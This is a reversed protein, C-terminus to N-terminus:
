EAPKDLPKYRPWKGQAVADLSPTKQRHRLRYVWLNYMVREVYKRTEPLYIAEIFLLPDDRVKWKNLNGEGANYAAVAFFLNKDIAPRDLLHLFFKQGLSMNYHPDYLKNVTRRRLGRDGSIFAATAPMLQMLGRAGAHSKARMNFASEQRMIAFVVARDLKFGDKPEWVPVPYLAGDYIKDHKTYILRSIGLSLAPMRGAAAILLYAEARTDGDRFYLPRLEDDAEATRGIQALAIARRVAPIKAAAELGATKPDPVKWRFDPAAGLKARAILGYFTLAEKAAKAYWRKAKATDKAHELSRGAWFAGGARLWEGETKDEWVMAFYKASEPFKKLAWGSLGAIWAAGTVHKGSRDAAASALAYAKDFNGLHLWRKAIEGKFYDTWAPGLFRQVTRNGLYKEASTLADRRLYRRMIGRSQARSLRTVPIPRSKRGVWFKGTARAMNPKNPRADGASRRRLALKYITNADPHDAYKTMWVKLDAYTSTYSGSLYRQALVYGLLIQNEIQAIEADAAHWKADDQLAFVKRYRAIDSASLVQPLSVKPSNALPGTEDDKHKKEAAKKEDKPPPPPASEEALRRQHKGMADIDPGWSAHLATGAWEGTLGLATVTATAFLALKIRKHVM